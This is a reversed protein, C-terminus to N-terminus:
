RGGRKRKTFDIKPLVMDWKQKRMDCFNKYWKAYRLVYRECQLPEKKELEKWALWAYFFDSERDLGFLKIADDESGYVQYNPFWLRLFKRIEVTVPCKVESPYKCWLGRGLGDPTKLVLSLLRLRVEEIELESDYLESVFISGNSFSDELSKGAYDGYLAEYLINMLRALKWYECRYNGVLRKNQRDGISLDVFGREKLWDRPHETILRRMDQIQEYVKKEDSMLLTAFLAIEKDKKGRYYDGLLTTMIPFSGHAKYEAVLERMWRRHHKTITTFYEGVMRRKFDKRMDDPSAGKGKSM